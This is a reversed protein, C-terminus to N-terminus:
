GSISFGINAFGCLLWLFLTEKKPIKIFYQNFSDYSPVLLPIVNKCAEGFPTSPVTSSSTTTFLSKSQFFKRTGSYVRCLSPPDQFRVPLGLLQELTLM